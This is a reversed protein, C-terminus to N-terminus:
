QFSIYNRKELEVQDKFGQFKEIEFLLWQVDDLLQVQIIPLSFGRKLRDLNFEIRILFNRAGAVYFAFANWDDQFIPFYQAHLGQTGVDSEGGVFFQLIKMQLKLEFLAEPKTLIDNHRHLYQDNLACLAAEILEASQIAQSIRINLSVPENVGPEPLILCNQQYVSFSKYNAASMLLLIRDEDDCYLACGPTCLRREVINEVNVVFNDDTIIIQTKAVLVSTCGCLHTLLQTNTLMKPCSLLNHWRAHM